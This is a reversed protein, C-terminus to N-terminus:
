SESTNNNYNKIILTNIISILVQQQVKYTLAACTTAFSTSLVHVFKALNTGTILVERLIAAINPM